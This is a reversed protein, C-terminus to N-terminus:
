RNHLSFRNSPSTGVPCLSVLVSIDPWPDSLMVWCGILSYLGATSAFLPFYFSVGVGGSPFLAGLPAPPSRARTCASPEAGLRMSAPGFSCLTLLHPKLMCIPPPSPVGLSHGAGVGRPVSRFSPWPLAPPLPSAPLVCPPGAPGTSVGVGEQGHGQGPLWTQLASRDQRGPGAPASGLVVNGSFGGQALCKGVFVPFAPKAKLTPTVTCCSASPGLSVRAWLLQEPSQTGWVPSSHRGCAPSRPASRAGGGQTREGPLGGGEM